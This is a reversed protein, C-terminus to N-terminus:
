STCLGNRLHKHLSDNAKPVIAILHISSSDLGGFGSALDFTILFIQNCTPNSGVCWGLPQPLLDKCAVNSLKLKGFM